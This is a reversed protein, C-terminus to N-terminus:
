AKKVKKYQISAERPQRGASPLIRKRNLSIQVRRVEFLWRCLWGSLTDAKVLEFTGDLEVPKLGWDPISHTAAFRVLGIVFKARTEKSLGRDAFLKRYVVERPFSMIDVYIDILLPGGGKYDKIREAWEDPAMTFIGGQIVALQHDAERQRTARERDEPTITDAAAELEAEAIRVLQM